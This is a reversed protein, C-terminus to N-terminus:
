PSCAVTGGRVTLMAKDGSGHAHGFGRVEEVFDELCRQPFVGYAWERYM